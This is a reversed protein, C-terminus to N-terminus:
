ILSYCKWSRELATLSLGAASRPLRVLEVIRDFTCDLLKAYETECLAIGRIGSLYGAFLAYAVASPTAKAKARTKRRHGKLHGSQTWTSAMNRVMSKLTTQTFRGSQRQEFYAELPEGSYYQGESAEWVFPASLRLLPDRTYASICALLPRGEPDRDWFYRLARFLAASPDLAYLNALHKATLKRTQGSRKGLCNDEEIAYLYEQRSAKQAEVFGLLNELEALM